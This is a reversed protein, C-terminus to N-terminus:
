PAAGNRLVVTRTAALAAPDDARLRLRIAVVRGVADGPAVFRDPVGHGPAGPPDADVGLEVEFAAVGPLIEEDVVRPGRQLTKRRLSPRLPEATSRPSLYYVRAVLDRLEGGPDPPDGSASLRGGWPDALIQLVGPEPVGDETHARRVVLVAGRPPLGGYPPCTLPWADEWAELPRELDIAWDPGCDGAVPVALPEESGGRGAILGAEAVLGWYGAHQLEHELTALAIRLTGQAEAARATDASISLIRAHLTAAVLVLGVSVGMAIVLEPLSLGACHARRVIM